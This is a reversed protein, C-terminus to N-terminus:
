GLSSSPSQGQGQRRMRRRTLSEWCRWCVRLLRPAPGADDVFDFPITEQFGPGIQITCEDCSVTPGQQAGDAGFSREDVM